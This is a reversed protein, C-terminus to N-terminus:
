DMAQLESVIVAGGMQPPLTTEAKVLMRPAQQGVWLTQGGGEGDIPEVRVKWTEFEGAPV